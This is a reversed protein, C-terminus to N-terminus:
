PLPPASDSSVPGSGRLLRLARLGRRVSEEDLSALSVNPRRTTFKSARLNSGVDALQPISELESLFAEVAGESPWEGDPLRSMPILKFEVSTGLGSFHFLSVTGLRRGQADHIKLGGTPRDAPSGEFELGLAAAEEIFALFNPVSAPENDQLWARYTETDWVTRGRAASAAKAEALEEGYTQAMLMEVTGQTLRAYEVAIISTDPGSMANLYETMRKLPENIADVALVIRFRGQELNRAVAERLRVGDDDAPFPSQSTRDQWRADFDEIGMKWLRSAYDFMQGVIERRIQPNSALKCEVLTVQGDVDVVVVDAPGAASQFERCTVADASVGPILEPHEALIQQLEAEAAYGAPDPERWTGDPQRILIQGM